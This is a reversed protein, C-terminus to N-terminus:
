EHKAITFWFTSGEGKKSTFQLQSGHAEVISKSIFLGLGYSKKDKYDGKYFMDFIHKKDEEKIGYGEDKIKFEVFDSEEIISVNIKSGEKSYKVANSILNDWVRKIKTKDLYMYTEQFNIEKIFIRGSSEVVHKGQDILYNGFDKLNVKEKHLKQNYQAEYTSDLIDLTIKEIYEASEYIEKLYRKKDKDEKVIGSILGKSFGKILTISTRLDHSLTSIFKATLYSKKELSNTLNKSTEILENSEREMKNFSNEMYSKLEEYSNNLSKLEDNEPNGIYGVSFAEKTSSITSEIYKNSSTLSDIYNTIVTIPKSIRKSFFMSVVVAALILIGGYLIISYLLSLSKESLESKPLEAMLIWNNSNMKKYTRLVSKTESVAFNEGDFETDGPNYETNDVMQGIKEPNRHSLVFGNSDIIVFYGTEGVKYDKIFNVFEEAKVAVGALAILEGKDGFIPSVTNVIMTGDSRANLIDSTVTSQTERGKIIYNRNRLDILIAEEMTTATIYGELNIIFLDKYFDRKANLKGMEEILYNNLEEMTIKEELYERVVADRALVKSDQQIIEVLLDIKEQGRLIQEKMYFEADDNLISASQSYITTSIIILFIIIIGSITFTIKKKLSM